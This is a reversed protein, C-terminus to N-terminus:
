ENPLPTEGPQGFGSHSTTVYEIQSEQFFFTHTLSQVKFKLNQVELM